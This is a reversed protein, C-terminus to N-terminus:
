GRTGDLGSCHEQASAPLKVYLVRGAALLKRIAAPAAESREVDAIGSLEAAARADLRSGTWQEEQADRDPVYLTVQDPVSAHAELVLWADSTELGQVRASRLVVVADGLQQLLAARRQALLAPPVPGAPSGEQAYASASILVLLAGFAASGSHMRGKKSHRPPSRYM